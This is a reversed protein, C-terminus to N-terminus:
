QKRLKEILIKIILIVTGVTIASDAINFVPWVKFDLFDIVYGFRVRDILNGLAGGLILALSFRILKSYRMRVLMYIIVCSAIIPVIFFIYPIASFVGFAGGTNHVLNLAFVGKIIELPLKDSYLIVFFKSAQDVAIIALTLIFVM